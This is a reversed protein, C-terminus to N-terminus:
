PRVTGEIVAALEPGALAASGPVADFAVVQAPAIPRIALHRGALEALRDPRTLFSWEARLVHISREAVAREREVAALEDELGKVRYSAAFLAFATVAVLTLWVLNSGNM